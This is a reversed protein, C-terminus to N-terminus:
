FHKFGNFINNMFESVGQKDGSKNNRMQYEGEDKDNDSEVDEHQGMRQGENQLHQKDSM